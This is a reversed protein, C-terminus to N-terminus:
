GRTLFPLLLLAFVFLAILWGCTFLYAKRPGTHQQVLAGGVLALLSVTYGLLVLSVVAGVGGRNGLALREAVVALYGAPVFLKFPLLLM